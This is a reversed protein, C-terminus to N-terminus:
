IEKFFENEIDYKVVEPDVKLNKLFESMSLVETQSTSNTNYYSYLQEIAKQSAKTWKKISEDLNQIESKSKYNKVLNLRRLTEKKEELIKELEKLESQNNNLFPMKNRNMYIKNYFKCLNPELVSSKRTLGPGKILQALYYIDRFQDELM